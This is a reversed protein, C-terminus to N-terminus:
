KENLREQIFQIVDGVTKIYELETQNVDVDFEDELVTALVLLRVSDLGLDDTLSDTMKLERQSMGDEELVSLLIEDVKEELNM